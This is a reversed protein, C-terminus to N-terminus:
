KKPGGQVYRLNLMITNFSPLKLDILAATVSHYKSYVFFM